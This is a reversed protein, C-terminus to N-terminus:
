SRNREKIMADAIQYATKAHFEYDDPESDYLVGTLAQGAFWDRLDMCGTDRDTIQVPEIM